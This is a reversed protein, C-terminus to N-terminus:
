LGKSDESGQLGVNRGGRPKMTILAMAADVRLAPRYKDHQVVAALKRPGSAKRAWGRVEETTVRCGALLFVSLLLVSLHSSRRLARKGTCASTVRANDRGDPPSLPSLSRVDRPETSGGRETIGSITRQKMA